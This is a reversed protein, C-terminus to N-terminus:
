KTSRSRFKSSIVGLVGSLVPLADRTFRDTNFMLNLGNVVQEGAFLNLVMGSLYSTWFAIVALFALVILQIIVDTWTTKREFM